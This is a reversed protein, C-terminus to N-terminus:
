RNRWEDFKGPDERPPREGADPADEDDDVCEGCTRCFWWHHQGPETGHEEVHNSGCGPCRTLKLM